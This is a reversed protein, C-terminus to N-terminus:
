DYPSPHRYAWNEIYRRFAYDFRDKGLIVERLLVLGLAPKFYAMPHRYKEPIGDARTMMVPARSDKFLPVIEDVPLMNEMGNRPTNEKILFMRPMYMSSRTSGRMWGRM